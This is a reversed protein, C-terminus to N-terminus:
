QEDQQEWEYLADDLSQYAWENLEVEIEENNMDYFIVKYSSVQQEYTM